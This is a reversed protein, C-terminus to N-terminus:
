ERVGGEGRGSDGAENNVVEKRFVNRQYLNGLHIKERTVDGKEEGPLPPEWYVQGCKRCGYLPTGGVTAGLKFLLAECKPCLGQPPQVEM